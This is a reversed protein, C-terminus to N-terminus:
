RPETKRRRRRFAGLGGLGVGLLTMMTPEPVAAAGTLSFAADFTPAPSLEGVIDTGVRLWDPADLEDRTWTQLDPTFPTGPPVIPKPASLWYFNGSSLEVQPVFFYHGAPLDFPTSFTM